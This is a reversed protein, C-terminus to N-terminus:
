LAGAQKLAAECADAIEKALETSANGHEYSRLAHMAGTTVKALAAMPHAPCNAIHRKLEDALAVPTSEVPGYRHGCYVCNVHGKGQLDSVWQRLRVIEKSLAMIRDRALTCVREHDLQDRMLMRVQGAVDYDSLEHQQMVHTWGNWDYTLEEVGQRYVPTETAMPTGM